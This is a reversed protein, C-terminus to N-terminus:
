NHDNHNHEVQQEQQKMSSISDPIATIVLIISILSSVIYVIATTRDKTWKRKAVILFWVSFVFSALLLLLRISPPLAVLGAGLTTLGLAIILTHLWHHSSAVIAFLISGVAKLLTSKKNISSHKHNKSM